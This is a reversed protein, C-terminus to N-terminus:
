QSRPHGGIRLGLTQTAASKVVHLNNYRSTKGIIIIGFMHGHDVKDKVNFQKRMLCM